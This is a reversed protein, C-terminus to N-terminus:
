KGCGRGRHAFMKIFERAPTLVIELYSLSNGSQPHPKTKPHHPWALRFRFKHACQVCQGWQGCVSVCMCVCENKCVCVYVSM